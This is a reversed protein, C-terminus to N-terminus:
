RCYSVSSICLCYISANHLPPGNSLIIVTINPKGTVKNAAELSSILQELEEKSLEVSETRNKGSESLDFDVSVVPQQISGLKDSSM